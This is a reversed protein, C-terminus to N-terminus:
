PYDLNPKNVKFGGAGNAACAGQAAERKINVWPLAGVRSKATNGYRFAEYKMVCFSKGATPTSYAENGPVSIYGEPCEVNSGMAPMQGLQQGAQAMKSRPKRKLTKCIYEEAKPLGMDECIRLTNEADATNKFSVEGYRLFPLVYKKMLKGNVDIKHCLEEAGDEKGEESLLNCIAALKGDADIHYDLNDPDCWFKEGDATEFYVKEGAIVHSLHVLMGSMVFTSLVSGYLVKNKLKFLRM